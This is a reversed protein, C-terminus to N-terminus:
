GLFEPAITLRFSYSFPAAVNGKAAHGAIHMLHTNPGAEELHGGVMLLDIGYKAFLDSLDEVCEDSLDWYQEGDDDKADEFEIVQELEDLVDDRYITSHIVNYIMSALLSDLPPLLSGRITDPLGNVYMVTFIFHSLM